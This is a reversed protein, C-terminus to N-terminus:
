YFISFLLISLSSESDLPERRSMQCNFLNEINDESGFPTSFANHGSIMGLQILIRDEEKIGLPKVAFTKLESFEDFLDRGGLDKFKDGLSLWEESNIHEFDFITTDPPFFGKVEIGEKCIGKESDWVHDTKVMVSVWDFLVIVSITKSNTFM